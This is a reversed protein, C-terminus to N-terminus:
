YQASTEGSVRPLTRNYTLKEADSVSYIRVCGDDCALALRTDNADNHEYIEVTDKDEDESESSEEEDVGSAISSSAHGNEYSKTEQKLNLGLDNSPEAAIQWISIGISDLVKQLLFLAVFAIGM